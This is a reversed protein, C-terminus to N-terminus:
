GGPRLAKAILLWELYGAGPGPPGDFSLGVAGGKKIQIRAGGADGVLLYSVLEHLQPRPGVVAVREVDAYGVLADLAKHPQCDPELEECPVPAPWGRQELLEVTRWARVFPSSLVLEIEPV